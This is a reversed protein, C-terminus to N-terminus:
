DRVPWDRTTHEGWPKRAFIREVMPVFHDIPLTDYDPDFSKQDYADCFDVTMDFAPHSRHRLRANADLGIKDFYYYGQFLGHQQVMWHTHRAVYPRLVSAGLEAHNEPSLDDGIDHLLAAVVYEECEGARLARTATQLSHQCRDIPYGPFGDAINELYALVRKGTKVIYPKALEDLLAYDEATGQDMRTFTVIPSAESDAHSPASANGRGPASLPTRAKM